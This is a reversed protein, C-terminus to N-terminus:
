NTKIKMEFKWELRKVIPETGKVLKECKQVVEKPSM